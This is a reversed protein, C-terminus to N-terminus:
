YDDGVIAADPEDEGDSAPPELDAVADAAADDDDAEATLEDGLGDTFRFVNPGGSCPVGPALHKLIVLIPRPAVSAVAKEYSKALQTHPAVARRTNYVYLSFCSQHAEM